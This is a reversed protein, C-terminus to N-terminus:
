GALRVVDQFTVFLFAAVDRGRVRPPELLELRQELAEVLAGAVALAGEIQGLVFRALVALPQSAEAIEFLQRLDAQTTPRGM